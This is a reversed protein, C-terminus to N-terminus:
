CVDSFICGIDVSIRLTVILFLIFFLKKSTHIKTGLDPDSCKFYIKFGQIYILVKLFTKNLAINDKNNVCGKVFNGKAVHVNFYSDFCHFIDPFEDFGHYKIKGLSKLKFDFSIM